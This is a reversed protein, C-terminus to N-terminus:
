SGGITIVVVKNRFREDSLSVMNGDLDPFSFEFRDYGEKLYTLKTPDALAATADREASWDTVMRGVLSYSQGSISGDDNLTGRWFSGTGGDFTSMYLEDGRLVGNLFRSDRTTHMSTGTVRGMAVPLGHGEERCQAAVLEGRGKDEVPRDVADAEAGVDLLLEHGGELGAVDDDHVVESAM